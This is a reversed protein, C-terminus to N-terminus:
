RTDKGELLLNEYHDLQEKKIQRIEAKIICIKKELKCKKKKNDKLEEKIFAKRERIRKM